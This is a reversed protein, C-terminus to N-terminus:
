RSMPQCTAPRRLKNMWAKRSGVPGDREPASERWTPRRSAKSRSATASDGDVLRHLRQTFGIRTYKSTLPPLKAIGAAIERARNMLRDAPVIENVVGYDKAEQASPKQQTLLFYRCRISGIVEPWLLHM